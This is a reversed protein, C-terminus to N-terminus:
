LETVLVGLKELEAKIFEVHEKGRAIFMCKYGGNRLEAVRKILLEDRINQTKKAFICLASINLTFILLFKLIVCQFPSSKLIICLFLFPNFKNELLIFLISYILFLSCILQILSISIALKSKKKILDYFKYDAIEVPKGRKEFYEKLIEMDAKRRMNKKPLTALRILIEKYVLFTILLPFTLVFLLDEKNTKVGELLVYDVQDVIKGIKDLPPYKIHTSGYVYCRLTEYRGGTELREGESSSSNMSYRKQEGNVLMKLYRKFIAILNQHIRISSHRFRQINWM